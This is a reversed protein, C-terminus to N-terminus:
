FDTYDVVILQVYASQAHMNASGKSIIHNLYRTELSDYSM